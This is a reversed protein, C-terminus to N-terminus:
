DCNENRQKTVAELMQRKEAEASVDESAPPWKVGVEYEELQRNLATM